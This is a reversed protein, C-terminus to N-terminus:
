ENYHDVLYSTIILPTSDAFLPPKEIADIKLNGVYEFCIENVQKKPKYPKDFVIEREDNDIVIAGSIPTHVFPNSPKCAFMVILVTLFLVRKLHELKNGM